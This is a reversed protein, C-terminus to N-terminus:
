VANIVAKMHVSPWYLIFTVPDFSDKVTYVTDLEATFTIQNDYKHNTSQLTAVLFM